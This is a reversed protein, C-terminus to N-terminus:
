CHNPRRHDTTPLPMSAPKGVVSSRDGVVGNRTDNPSQNSKYIKTKMMRIKLHNRFNGAGAADARAARKDCLDVARPRREIRPQRRRRAKLRRVNRHAHGADAHEIKRVALRPGRRILNFQM